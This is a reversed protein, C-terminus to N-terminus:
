RALPRADDVASRRAGDSAPPDPRAYELDIPQGYDLARPMPVRVASTASPSGEDALDVLGYPDPAGLAGGVRLTRRAPRRARQGIPFVAAVRITLVGYYKSADLRNYSRDLSVSVPRWDRALADGFRITVNPGGPLTAYLTTPHSRTTEVVAANARANQLTVTRGGGGDRSFGFVFLTLALLCGVGVFAPAVWNLKVDAPAEAEVRVALRRGCRGCFVGAGHAEQRCNLYACRGM